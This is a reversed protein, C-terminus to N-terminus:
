DALNPPPAGFSIVMQDGKWIEFSSGGTLVSAYNFAAGDDEAEITEASEM